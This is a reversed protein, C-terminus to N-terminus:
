SQIALQPGAIEDAKTDIVNEGAGDEAVSGGNHLLLGATGNLKLDGLL